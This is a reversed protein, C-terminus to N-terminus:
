YNDAKKRHVRRKGKKTGSIKDANVKIKRWFNRGFFQDSVYKEWQEMYDGSIISAASAKPKTELMRNEEESKEKNPVILNVLLILFLSLVFIKGIMSELQGKRKRSNM